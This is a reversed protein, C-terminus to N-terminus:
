SGFDSVGEEDHLTFVFGLEVAFVASFAGDEFDVGGEGFRHLGALRILGAKIRWWCVRAASMGDPEYGM